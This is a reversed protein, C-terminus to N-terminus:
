AYHEGVADQLRELRRAVVALTKNEKRLASLEGRVYRWLEDVDRQTQRRATEYQVSPESPLPPFPCATLM